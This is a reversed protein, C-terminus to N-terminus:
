VCVLMNHHTVCLTLSLLMGLKRYVEMQVAVLPIHDREKQGGRRERRGTAMLSEREGERGRGRERGRNAM